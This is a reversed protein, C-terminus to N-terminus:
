TKKLKWGAIHPLHENLVKNLGSYNIGNSKAFKAVTGFELDYIEGTPSEITPYKKIVKIKEEKVTKPITALINLYKYHQEEIINYEIPYRVKLWTHRKLKRINNVTETDTNTLVAIDKNTSTPNEICKILINVYYEESYRSNHPIYGKRINNPTVNDLSNLGYEISNFEHIYFLELTDLSDESCECLVELTPKNFLIFASMLKVSAEGKLMSQLHNEYRNEINKSQGIYTYETGEFILAYIGITM